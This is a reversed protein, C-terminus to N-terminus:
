VGDSVRGREPVPAPVAAGTIETRGALRSKPLTFVPAFLAIVSVTVLAPAPVKDNVAILMVLENNVRTEGGVKGTVTGAPPRNSLTRKAGTATPACVLVNVIVLLSGSAVRLLNFTASVPAAVA